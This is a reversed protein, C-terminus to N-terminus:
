NEERKCGINLSCGYDSTCACMSVIKMDAYNRFQKNTIYEHGFDFNEVHTIRYGNTGIFFSKHPNLADFRIEMLDVTGRLKTTEFFEKVKM